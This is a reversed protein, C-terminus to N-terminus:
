MCSIIMWFKRALGPVVIASWGSGGSSSSRHVTDTARITKPGVIFIWAGGFRAGPPLAEQLARSSAPMLSQPPTEGTVRSQTLGSFGQGMSGSSAAAVAAAPFARTGRRVSYGAKAWCGCSHSSPSPPARLMAPITRAATSPSPQALSLPPQNAPAVVSSGGVPSGVDSLRSRVDAGLAPPVEGERPMAGAAPPRTCAAFHTTSTPDSPTSFPQGEAPSPPEEHDVRPVPKSSRSWRM